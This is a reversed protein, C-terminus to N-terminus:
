WTCWLERWVIKDREVFTANHLTYSPSPLESWKKQIYFYGSHNSYCIFIPLIEPSTHTHTHTHSGSFCIVNYFFFVWFAISNCHEQFRFRSIFLIADTWVYNKCTTSLRLRILCLSKGSFFTYCDNCWLLKELNNLAFM